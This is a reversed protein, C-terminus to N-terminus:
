CYRRYVHILFAILAPVAFVRCIEAWYNLRVEGEVYGHNKGSTTQIDPNNPDMEVLDADEFPPFKGTEIFTDLLQDKEAWREFLWAEFEEQNELPIDEFAFRRWYFNVVRPPRCKLYTSRITFYSDPFSGKPPGEYAMTCDYVHGVTGRLQQLCFFLGTSRPHLEHKLPPIGKKKGYADSVDKTHLSLNTGEPFILLWMPDFLPNGSSSEARKVSLKSLRHQLRPKDAMWKRAMFIFGYLTMGQGVLPIYKLSEKLIIYIHGHMKNTYTVWWLYLWDTYVQHNAILVLRDPFNTKIGGNSTLTVQGLVSRDGSIRVPTPASWETLATIALGFSEKTLAIWANFYEKKIVYLPLGVVQAVIICTCCCCFWAVILFSRVLQVFLGYNAPEREYMHRSSKMLEPKSGIRAQSATKRHRARPM